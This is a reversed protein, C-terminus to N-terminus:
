SSALAIGVLTPLVIWVGLTLVIAVLAFTRSQDRPPRRCSGITEWLRRSPETVTLRIRRHAMATGRLSIWALSVGILAGVLGVILAVWWTDLAFGSTLRFLTAVLPLALGGIVFSPVGVSRRKFIERLGEAERRARFLQARIPLDRPTQMERLWYLNRAETALDRLHSVVIYRAVLQVGWRVVLKLPGLSAAARSGHYGHRGLTELSAVFRRHDSEFRVPDLVSTSRALETLMERERPSRVDLEDLFSSIALDDGALLELREIPNEYAGPEAPPDAQPPTPADV